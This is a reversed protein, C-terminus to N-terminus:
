RGLGPSLYGPQANRVQDLIRQRAQPDEFLKNLCELCSNVDPDNHLKFHNGVCDLLGAQCLDSVIDELFPINGLYLHSGFDQITGTLTPHHHIFLLFRLKQFSDIQRARIFQAAKENM